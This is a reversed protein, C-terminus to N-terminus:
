LLYHADSRKLCTSIEKTSINEVQPVQAMTNSGHIELSSNHSDYQVYNHFTSQVSNLIPSLSNRNSRSPLIEAIKTLRRNNSSLRTTDIPSLKVNKPLITPYGSTNWTQIQPKSLLSTKRRQSLIQKTNDKKMPSRNSNSFNQNEIVFHVPANSLTSFSKKTTSIFPVPSVIIKENFVTGLRNRRIQTDQYNPKEVEKKKQRKGKALTNTRENNHYFYNKVLPNKKTYIPAPVIKLFEHYNDNFNDVKKTMQIESIEKCIFDIIIDIIKDKCQNRNSKVSCDYKYSCLNTGYANKKNSANIIRSNRKDCVAKSTKNGEKLINRGLIRFQSLQNRWQVCEDFLLGVSLQDQENFLTREVIRWQEFIKNPAANEIDESWSNHNTWYNCRYTLCDKKNDDVCIHISDVDTRRQLVTM